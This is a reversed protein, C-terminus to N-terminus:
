AWEERSDMLMYLGWKFQYHFGDEKEGKSQAFGKRQARKHRQTKTAKGRRRQARQTFSAACGEGKPAPAHAAVLM